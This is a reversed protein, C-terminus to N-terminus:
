VELAGHKPQKRNCHFQKATRTFDMVLYRNLSTAVNDFITEPKPARGAMGLLLHQMREQRNVIILKWRHM